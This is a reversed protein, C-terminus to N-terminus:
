RPTPRVGPPAAGNAAKRRPSPVSPWGENEAVALAGAESQTEIPGARSVYRHLKKRALM